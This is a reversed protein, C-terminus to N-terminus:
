PLRLFAWENAFCEFTEDRFYFLFHRRGAEARNTVNWDNPAHAVPDPGVIEYFEGWEPTIGSYRCQDLYWGEDNTEGLRWESCDSFTLLGQENPTAEFVWPNLGFRLKVKAGEVQVKPFPANPEPNWGENLHLFTRETM